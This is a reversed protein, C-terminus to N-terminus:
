KSSLLDLNWSALRAASGEKPGGGGPRPWVSVRLSHASCIRDQSTALFRVLGSAAMTQKTLSGSPDRRARLDVEAVTDAGLFSVTCM